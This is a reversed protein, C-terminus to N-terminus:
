WHFGFLVHTKNCTNGTLIYTTKMWYSDFEPCRRQDTRFRNGNFVSQITLWALDNWTASQYPKTTFVFLILNYLLICMAFISHKVFSAFFFHALSCHLRHKFSEFSCMWVWYSLCLLACACVRVHSCVFFVSVTGGILM